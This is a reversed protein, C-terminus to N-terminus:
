KLLEEILSEPLEVTELEEEIEIPVNHTNAMNRSTRRESTATSGFLMQREMQEQMQRMSEEGMIVSFGRNTPTTRASLDEMFGRFDEATLTSYNQTTPATRTYNALGEGTNLTSSATLTAELHNQTSLGGWGTAANINFTNSM